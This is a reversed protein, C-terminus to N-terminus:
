NEHKKAIKERSYFNKMSYPLNQKIYKKVGYSNIILFCTDM